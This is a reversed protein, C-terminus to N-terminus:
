AYMLSNLGLRAAVESGEIDKVYIGTEFLINNNKLFVIQMSGEEQPECQRKSLYEIVQNKTKYSMITTDVGCIGRDVSVILGFIKILENISVGYLEDEEDILTFQGDYIGEEFLLEIEEETLDEYQEDVRDDIINDKSIFYEHEINLENTSIFMKLAERTLEEKKFKSNLGYNFQLNILKGIAPHLDKGWNNEDILYDRVKNYRFDYIRKYFYDMIRNPDTEDIQRLKISKAEEIIADNLHVHMEAMDGSSELWNMGLGMGIFLPPFGEINFRMCKSVEAMVKKVNLKNCNIELLVEDHIMNTVILEGFLKNERIFMFIRAMAIKFIDAATGQIVANGAQRLAAAKIKNSVKGEKDTFSYYRYRNFTTKTYRNVLAMEKVVEFFRKVNPQDKFYLEYKHKAEEIQAKGSMGTLNIALSKFGMGYPIGFNFAKADNRMKSDVSAYPVDYMISAMLTHYDNDPDYFMKILEKEKALAVLTRYEIQSYDADLFIYGERPSVLEKVRDPYQQANPKSCSMRGTATTIQGYSSFIYGGPYMFEPLKDFFKTVLTYIAKWESYKHIVPYAKEGDENKMELYQKLVDQGVSRKEGKFPIKLRDYFLEAVQKPSSLLLEEDERLGAIERIERELEELKKISKQYANEIKQEDLRHGYFEMYGVCMANIIEVNYLYELEKFETMLAKKYKLFIQLTTDGDAPAYAKAGEYDMYSFDIANRDRGRIDAKKKKGKDMFFFDSLSLQEIGLERLTLYDLRSPEGRNSTTSRFKYLLQHLIMVDDKLNMDIDYLYCVKWEYAGNHTVLHKTELIYRLREMLIVDSTLEEDRSDRLLRGMDTECKPDRIKKQERIRKITEARVKSERDEYLNKFKRNAVPFYYSIDPEVCIVVGVLSDVEIKDKEELGLNYKELEKQHKSNIKGFMNISLGTTEVDFSIPGDYKELQMFINEATEDDNVIYYKKNRLWKLDKDLSIERLTRIPVDAEGIIGEFEKQTTLETYPIEPIDINSSFEAEITINESIISIGVLNNNFLDITYNIKKSEFSHRIAVGKIFPVANANKKNCKKMGDKIRKYIERAKNNNYSFQRGNEEKYASYITGDNLVLLLTGGKNKTYKVVLRYMIIKGSKEDIIKVTGKNKM